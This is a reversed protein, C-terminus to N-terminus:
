SAIREKAAEGGESGTQSHDPSLFRELVRCAALGVWCRNEPARKGSGYGTEWLGDPSQHAVFWDLGEAIKSDRRDFGLRSLTDLATLL